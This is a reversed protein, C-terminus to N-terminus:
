QRTICFTNRSKLLSSLKAIIKHNNIRYLKKCTMSLNILIKSDNINNLIIDCIEDPLDEFSFSTEQDITIVVM